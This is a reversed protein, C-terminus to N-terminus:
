LELQLSAIATPLDNVFVFLKDLDMMRFIDRVRRDTGAFRLTSEASMMAKFLRILQGINSSNVHTVASMDIIVDPVMDAKRVMDNLQTLDESLAPEDSLDVVWIDDSWQQIPM